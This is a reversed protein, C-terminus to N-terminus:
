KYLAPRQQLFGRLNWPGRAIYIRGPFSMDLLRLWRNYGPTGFSPLIPPYIGEIIQSYGEWYNSYPRCRSEGGRIIQRQAADSRQDESSNPSFYHEM